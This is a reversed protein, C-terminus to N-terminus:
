LASEEAIALGCNRGVAKKTLELSCNNRRDQEIGKTEGTATFLQEMM